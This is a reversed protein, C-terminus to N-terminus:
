NVPVPNQAASFQRLQALNSASKKQVLAIWSEWARGRYPAPPPRKALEATLAVAEEGDRIAHTLDSEKYHTQSSEVLSTVRAVGSKLVKEVYAAATGTNERVVYIKMISQFIDPLVESNPYDKQFKVAMNLKREMNPEADLQLWAIVEEERGLTRAPPVVKSSKSDAPVSFDISSIIRAAEVAIEKAKAPDNGGPYYTLSAVRGAVIFYNGHPINILRYRGASDTETISLLSKGDPDDVAIAAVRVGAATGGDLIKISGTVIGAGPELGGSQVFLFVSILLATM